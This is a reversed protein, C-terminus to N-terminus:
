RTRATASPATPLECRGSGSMQNGPMGEFGFVANPAADNLRRLHEITVEGSGGKHRSPHNPLLYSGTTKRWGHRRRM